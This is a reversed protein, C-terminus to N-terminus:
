KSSKLPYDKGWLRWKRWEVSVGKGTSLMHDIWSICITHWAWGHRNQSTMTNHLGFHTSSFQIKNHQFTCQNEHHYVFLAINIDYQGCTVFNCHLPWYWPKPYWCLLSCYRTINHVTGWDVPLQLRACWNTWCGRWRTSSTRGLWHWIWTFQGTIIYLLMLIYVKSIHVRSHLM